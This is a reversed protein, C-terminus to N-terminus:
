EEMEHVSPIGIVNVFFPAPGLDDDAALGWSTLTALALALSALFALPLGLCPPTQSLFLPLLSWGNATFAKWEVLRQRYNEGAMPSTALPHVLRQCNPSEM